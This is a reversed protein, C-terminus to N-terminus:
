QNLILNHSSAPMTIVPQRLLGEGAEFTSLSSPTKLCLGLSAVFYGTYVHYEPPTQQPKTLKELSNYPICIKNCITSVLYGPLPDSLPDHSHPRTPTYTTQYNFNHGKAHPM